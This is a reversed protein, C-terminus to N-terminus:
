PGMHIVISELMVMDTEQWYVGRSYKFFNMRLTWKESLTLKTHATLQPGPFWRKIDSRSICEERTLSQRTLSWCLMKKLLFSFGATFLPTITKKKIIIIITCLSEVPTQTPHYLDSLQYLMPGQLNKNPQNRGSELWWEQFFKHPVSISGRPQHIKLLM